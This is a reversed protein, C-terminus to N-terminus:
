KLCKNLDNNKKKDLIWNQNFQDKMKPDVGVKGSPRGSKKERGGEGKGRSRNTESPTEDRLQFRIILSCRQSEHGFSERTRQM